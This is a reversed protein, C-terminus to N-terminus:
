FMLMLASNFTAHIMARAVYRGRVPVRPLLPSLESYRQKGLRQPLVGWISSGAAWQCSDIGIRPRRGHVAYGSESCLLNRIFDIGSANLTEGIGLQLL